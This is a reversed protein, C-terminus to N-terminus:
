GTQCKSCYVTGRGAVRATALTTGCVKCAQGGRGYVYFSNQFAGANGQADRYDRISSGCQEISELLVAKIEGALKELRPLSISAAKATPLIGAKFLAEDAYINGVGALVTQDLIVAKVASKRAAIREALERAPTELPEPGLKVWFPWDSFDKAEMLRCYGFMRMDDFFLRSPEGPLKELDFIIKTHKLPESGDPHVFFKGTMKLHFALFLAKKAGKPIVEMLLLKARRYVKNIRAGKLKPLLAEGCALSKGRLVAVDEIKRDLVQPSLTRVITEVEPLEPM